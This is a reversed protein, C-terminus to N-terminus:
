ILNPLHNLHACYHHGEQGDERYFIEFTKRKDPEIAVGYVATGNGECLCVM